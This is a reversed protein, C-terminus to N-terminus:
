GETGTAKSLASRAEDINGKIAGFFWPGIQIGYLGTWRYSRTEKFATTFSVPMGGDRRLSFWYTKM